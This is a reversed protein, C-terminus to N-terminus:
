YDFGFPFSFAILVNVMISVAKGILGDVIKYVLRVCKGPDIILWNVKLLKEVYNKTIVCLFIFGAM